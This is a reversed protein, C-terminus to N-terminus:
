FLLFARHEIDGMPGSGGSLAHIYISYTNNEKNVQFGLDTDLVDHLFSVEDGDVPLGTIAAMDHLTPGVMDFALCFANALTNWFSLFGYLLGFNPPIEKKSLLIIDCIEVKKWEKGKEDVM